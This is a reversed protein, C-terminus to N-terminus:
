PRYSGFVKELRAKNPALEGCRAVVGIHTLIDGM